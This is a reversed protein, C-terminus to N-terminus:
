FDGYQNEEKEIKDWDPDNIIKQNEIWYLMYKHKDGKVRIKRGFAEREFSDWEGKWESKFEDTAKLAGIMSLYEKKALAEDELTWNM